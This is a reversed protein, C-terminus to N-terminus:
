GLPWNNRLSCRLSCSALTDGAGAFNTNRENKKGKAMLVLANNREQESLTQTLWNMTTKHWIHSGKTQNNIRVSNSLCKRLLEVNVNTIINFINNNINIIILGQHEVGRFIQVCDNSVEREPHSPSLFVDLCSFCRWLLARSPSYLLLFLFTSM